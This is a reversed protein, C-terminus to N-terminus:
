EVRVYCATRCSLAVRRRCVVILSGGDVRFALVTGRFEAPKASIRRRRDECLPIDQVHLSAARSSGRQKM